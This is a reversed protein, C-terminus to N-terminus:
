SFLPDKLITLSADGAFQLIDSAFEPIQQFLEIIEPHSRLRSLHTVFYVLVIEQACDRENSVKSLTTPYTSPKGDPADLNQGDYVMKILKAMTYGGLSGNRYYGRGLMSFLNQAAKKQLTEAHLSRALRYMELHFIAAGESQQSPCWATARGSTTYNTGNHAFELFAQFAKVSPIFQSPVYLSNSDRKPQLSNAVTSTSGTAVLEQKVQQGSGKEAKVEMKLRKEKKVHSETNVADTDITASGQTSTRDLAKLQRDFYQSARELLVRHVTFPKDIGPRPTNSEATSSNGENQGADANRADEAGFPDYIYVQVVASTYLDTDSVLRLSGVETSKGVAVRRRASSSPGGVDGSAPRKRKNATKKAHARKHQLQQDKPVDTERLTNKSINIIKSIDDFEAPSHSPFLRRFDADLRGQHTDRHEKSTFHGLIERESSSSFGTFVFPERGFGPDKQICYPCEYTSDFPLEVKIPPDYITFSLINDAYKGSSREAKSHPKM